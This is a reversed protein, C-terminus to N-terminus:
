RTKMPNSSVGGPVVIEYPVFNTARLAGRLPSAWPLASVIGKPIGNQTLLFLSVDNQHLGKTKHALHYLQTNKRGNIEFAIMHNDVTDPDTETTKRTTSSLSFPHKNEICM